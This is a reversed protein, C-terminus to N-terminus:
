MEGGTERLTGNVYLLDARKACARVIAMWGDYELAYTRQAEKSYKAFEPGNVVKEITWLQRQADRSLQNLHYIKKTASARSTAM